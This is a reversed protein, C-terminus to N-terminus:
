KIKGAESVEYNRYKCRIILYIEMSSNKTKDAVM